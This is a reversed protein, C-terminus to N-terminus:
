PMLVWVEELASMNVALKVRAELYMGQVRRVDVIQGIPIGKPFVGGLGSTIVSQGPRLDANRTLFGLDVFTGGWPSSGGAMIIGSDRAEPVLASVRCRTDNLLVVLSWDGAAEFVRGVLGEATLVPLNPRIGDRTGLNIHIAQWWNSPDRGIVRAARLKWPVQQQWKLMQRLSENERRIEQAELLQIRLQELQKRLQDNEQILVARSVVRDGAKELLRESSQTLGFLPLFISSLAAKLRFSVREPLALGVAALLVVTGFIWFHKKREM